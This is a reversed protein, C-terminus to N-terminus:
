KFLNIHGKRSYMIHKGQHKGEVYKDTGTAEIVYYYTGMAAVKGGIKGDWGQSPDTSKYVVIGWRNFITISYTKLSKFVVRFEDNIGDGNPSFANPIDLLSELVSVKVSDEGVCNGEANMVKLLATYNGTENFTYRVNEESYRYYNTPTMNNYIKWEFFAATPNSKNEFYVVLPGSGILTNNNSDDRKYENTGSRKEISASIHCEVAVSKYDTCIKQPTLGLEKAYSDGTICISIDKKPPNVSIQTFPYTYDTSVPSDQWAKDKFVYDTYALNFIRPLTKRSNNKDYYILDPVNFNTNITLKDCNGDTTLSNLAIPYLSYDIVWIHHLPTNNTKDFVIYGTADEPSFNRTNAVFSNDYKRWEFTENGNYSIETSTAIGNFIFVADINQENSIQLYGNPSVVSFQAFCFHSLATLIITFLLKRMNIFDPLGILFDSEILINIGAFNSNNKSVFFLLSIKRM